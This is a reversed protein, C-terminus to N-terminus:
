RSIPSILPSTPARSAALSANRRASWTWRVSTSPSTPVASVATSFALRAAEVASAAWSYAFAASAYLAANAEFVNRPVSLSFDFM